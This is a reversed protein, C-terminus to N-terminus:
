IGLVTGRQVVKKIAREFVKDNSSFATIGIVHMEKVRRASFAPAAVV